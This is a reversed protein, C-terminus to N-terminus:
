ELADAGSREQPRLIQKHEAIVNPRIRSNQYDHFVPTPGTAPRTVLLSTAANANCFKLSDEGSGSATREM